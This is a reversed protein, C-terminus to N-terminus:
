EVLLPCSAQQGGAQVRVRYLGPALGLLSLSAAPGATPVDVKQTRVVRGMADVLALTGHASGAGAPLYVTATARAPNPAVRLGAAWAPTATGLASADTLSVLLGTPIDLRTSVATVNDFTAPTLGSGSVYVNTDTVAVGTAVDNGLGGGRKAWSFTAGSGGDRLRALFLDTGGANALVTGGFDATTGELTGCVYVNPGSAALGTPAENGAGGARQAWIFGTDSVKAVVVDTGGTAALTTAGFDAGAGSFAGAVYLSSGTAAVATVQDNATGGARYAWAFAGTTGADALKAVFADSGGASTLSTSGYIATASFSGGVVVGDATAVMGNVTGVVPQAWVFSGSNGADLLKAVYTGRGNLSIANGFYMTPGLASSAALYVNAGDVVLAKPTDDFMSGVDQAWVFDATSGNDTLKAVYVDSNSIYAGGHSTLRTTLDDFSMFDAFFSGMIYISSGNVAIATAQCSAFGGGTNYVSPYSAYGNKIWVFSGTAQSWKAVFMHLGLSAGTSLGGVTIQRDGDGVIYVNGAADTATARIVIPATYNAYPSQAALAMQWAPAQAAADVAGSLVLCSSLILLPHKM